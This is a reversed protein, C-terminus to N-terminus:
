QSIHRIKDEHELQIIQEKNNLKVLGKHIRSVLEINCIYNALM